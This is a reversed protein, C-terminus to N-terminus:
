QFSRKKVGKIPKAYEEGAMFLLSNTWAMASIGDATAAVAAM